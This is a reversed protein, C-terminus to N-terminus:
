SWCKLHAWMIQPSVASWKRVNSWMKERLMIEVGKRATMERWSWEECRLHQWKVEAKGGKLKMMFEGSGNLKPESLACINFRKEAIM